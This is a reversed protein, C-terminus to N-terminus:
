IMSMSSSPINLIPPLQNGDGAVGGLLGQNRLLLATLISNVGNNVALGQGLIGSARANGANQLLNAVNLGTNVAAEGTQRTNAGGLGALALRRNVFRDFETSALNSNFNTLERLANGSFAGQGGAGLTQAIGELGEDRRFQFDPSVEFGSMDGGFLQALQNVAGTGADIFPQNLRQLVDFQRRQEAIGADAAKKQKKAAKGAAVAGIGASALGSTLLAAGTGIAM